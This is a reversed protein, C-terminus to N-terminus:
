GGRSSVPPVDPSRWAKVAKDKFEKLALWLCRVSTIAGLMRHELKRVLLLAADSVTEVELCALKLVAIVVYVLVGTGLIPGVGRWVQIAFDFIHQM